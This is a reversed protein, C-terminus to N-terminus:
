SMETAKPQSTTAKTPASMTNNYLFPLHPLAADFDAKFVGLRTATVSM